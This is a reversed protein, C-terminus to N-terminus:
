LVEQELKINNQLMYLIADRYLEFRKDSLMKNLRTKDNKTLEKVKNKHSALESVGM